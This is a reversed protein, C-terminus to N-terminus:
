QKSRAYVIDKVSDPDDSCDDIVCIHINDYTQALASDIAKGLYEQYNHHAIIFTVRPGM